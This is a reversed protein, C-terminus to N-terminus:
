SPLEDGPDAARPRTGASVKHLADLDVLVLVEADRIVLEEERLQRLARGVVERVTGTADAIDQTGARVVVRSDERTALDLLHRAVRSRVPLFVNDSLTAVCDYVCESVARALEWAVTPERQALRALTAPNLMLMRSDSVAQADVAPVAAIAGPVGLIMGPGLYRLTMQRAGSMVYTRLLGSVVLACPPSELRRQTDAALPELTDGGTLELPRASELIERQVRDPFRDLLSCRWAERTEPRMSLRHQSSAPRPRRPPATVAGAKSDIIEHSM